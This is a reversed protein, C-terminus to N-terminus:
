ADRHNGACCTIGHLTGNVRRRLNTHFQKALGAPAKKTSEDQNTGSTESYLGLLDIRLRVAAHFPPENARKPAATDKRDCAHRALGMRIVKTRDAAADPFRGVTAVRPIRE